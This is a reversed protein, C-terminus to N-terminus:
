SGHKVSFDGADSGAGDEDEESSEEDPAAGASLSIGETFVVRRNEGHEWSLM